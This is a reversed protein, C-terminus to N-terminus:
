NAAGQAPTDVTEAAAVTTPGRGCNHRELMKARIYAAKRYTIRTPGVSALARSFSVIEARRAADDPLFEPCVFGQNIETLVSGLDRAASAESALCLSAVALLCHVFRRPEIM